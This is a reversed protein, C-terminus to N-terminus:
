EAPVISAQTALISVVNDHQEVISNGAIAIRVLSGDPKTIVVEGKPLLSSSIAQHQDLMAFPSKTGPVLVQRAECSLLTREPTIISVQM